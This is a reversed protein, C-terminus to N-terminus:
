HGQLGQLWPNPAQQGAGPPAAGNMPQPSMGQAGPYPMAGGQPVPRQMPHMPQQQQNMMQMGAQLLQHTAPASKGYATNGTMAGMLGQMWQPTQANQAAAGATGASGTAQANAAATTAGNGMSPNGSM